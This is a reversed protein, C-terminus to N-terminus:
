PTNEKEAAVKPSGDPASQRAPIQAPEIYHKTPRAVTSPPYEKGKILELTGDTIYPHDDPVDFEHKTEPDKVRVYIPQQTM